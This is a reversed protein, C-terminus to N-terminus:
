EDNERTKARNRRRAAVFRRNARRTRTANGSGGSRKKRTEKALKHIVKTSLGCFGGLLLPRDTFSDRLPTPFACLLRGHAVQRRGLLSLAGRWPLAKGIRM